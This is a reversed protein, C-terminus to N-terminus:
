KTQWTNPDNATLYPAICTTFTFAYLALGTAQFTLELEHWMYDPNHVLQYLRPQTVRVVSEGQSTFEIDDGAHIPDLFLGDQRVVIVPETQSAQLGLRMEVADASPSLVGNVTAAQYPLVIKGGTQGAYAIAEPWARWAGDVYFQGTKRDEASPLAYFMPTQPFYGEPNGLAGAFLGGGQYGAYLEPTPRYCIAGPTDEPRLAPLPDPLVIDPNYQRLLIQIAQETEQYYGEGQRVFRIYGDGDVLYKTPWAKNAFREWSQQQNDLLVPYSIHHNTVATEVFTRIHAFQFEPTHIGIITLGKDAYRQQWHTLYPLTRLCNICAYDWFDILVVQGRLVSKTLPQPTNLWEAPVFDPMRVLRPELLHDVM